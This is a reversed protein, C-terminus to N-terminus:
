GHKYEKFTQRDLYGFTTWSVHTEYEFLLKVDRIMIDSSFVFERYEDISLKKKPMDNPITFRAITMAFLQPHHDILKANELRRLLPYDLGWMIERKVCEAMYINFLEKFDFHKIIDFVMPTTNNKNDLSKYYDPDSMYRLVQTFCDFWRGNFDSPSLLALALCFLMREQNPTGRVSTGVTRGNEKVEYWDLYYRRAKNLQKKLESVNGQKHADLFPIIQSLEGTAIIHDFEALIDKKTKPASQTM